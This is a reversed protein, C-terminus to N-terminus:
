KVRIFIEKNKLFHEILKKELIPKEQISWDLYPWVNVQSKMQFLAKRKLPLENKIDVEVVKKPIQPAIEYDLEKRNESLEKSWIIFQYARGKFKIKKMLDTVIKSVARHDRHGDPYHFYILDPKEKETIEEVLKKAEEFNEFVRGEGNTLKLFYLKEKSIGLIRAAKKIEEKRKKGVAFVSPNEKIGLVSKHSNRGDTFIVAFVCDGKKIHQVIRGGAGLILDDDHAVYIGVKKIKKVSKRKSKKLNLM